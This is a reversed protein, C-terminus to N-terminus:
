LGPSGARFGENKPVDGEPGPVPRQSRPHNAPTPRQGQGMGMRDLLQEALPKKLARARRWVRHAIWGAAVALLVAGADLVPGFANM